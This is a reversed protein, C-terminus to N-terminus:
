IGTNELWGEQNSSAMIAAAEKQSWDLHEVIQWFETESM